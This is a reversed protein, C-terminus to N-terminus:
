VLILDDDDDCAAKFIFTRGDGPADRIPGYFRTLVHGHEEGAACDVPNSLARCIPDAQVGEVVINGGPFSCDIEMSM